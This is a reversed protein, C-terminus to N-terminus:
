RHGRERRHYNKAALSRAGEGRVTCLARLLRQRRRYVCFEATPESLPDAPNKRFGCRVHRHFGDCAQTRRRIRGPYVGAM